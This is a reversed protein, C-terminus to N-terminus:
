GAKREDLLRGDRFRKVLDLEDTTLKRECACGGGYGEGHCHMRCRSNICIPSPEKKCHDLVCQPASREIWKTGIVYRHFLNWLLIIM